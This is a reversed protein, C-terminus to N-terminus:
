DKYTRDDNDEVNDGDAIVKTDNMTLRTEQFFSDTLNEKNEKKIEEIRLFKQDMYKQLETKIADVEGIKKKKLPITKVEYTDTIYALDMLPIGDIGILCVFHKDPHHNIKSYECDEHYKTDKLKLNLIALWAENSQMYNVIERSFEVPLNMENFLFTQAVLTDEPAYLMNWKDSVRTNKDWSYFFYEFEDKLRDIEIQSFLQKQESLKKNTDLTGNIYGKFTINNDPEIFFLMHTIEKEKGSTPIIFHNADLERYLVAPSLAVTTKKFVNPLKETIEQGYKEILYKETESGNMNTYEKIETLYSGRVGSPFNNFPHIINGDKDFLENAQKMDAYDIQVVYGWKRELIYVKGDAIGKEELQQDVLKKIAISDM